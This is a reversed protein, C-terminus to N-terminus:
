KILMDLLEKVSKRKRPNLVICNELIEILKEDTGYTELLHRIGPGVASKDLCMENKDTEDYILQDLIKELQRRNNRGCFFKHGTAYEAFVVGIAWVDISLDYYECGMCNEPARYYRSCIYSVNSVNEVLKKASGFDCIVLNDKDDILINGPKIDRHCIKLDHMYKIGQLAQILLKFVKEKAYRGMIQELDYQYFPFVLCYFCYKVTRGCELEESIHEFFYAILRVINPHDMECLYEIERQYYKPNQYVMKIVRPSDTELDIIKIILGFTGSGIIGLTKYKIQIQDGRINIANRM